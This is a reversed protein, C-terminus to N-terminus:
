RRSPYSGVLKIFRRFFFLAYFLNLLLIFVAVGLGLWYYRDKKPLIKPAWVGPREIDYFVPVTDGMETKDFEAESIPLRGHYPQKGVMYTFEVFRHGNTAEKKVVQGDARRLTQSAGGVNEFGSGIGLFLESFKWSLLAFMGIMLIGLFFFKWKASGSADKM